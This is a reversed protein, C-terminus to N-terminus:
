IPTKFGMARVACWGMAGEFIMFAGGALAALSIWLAWAELGFLWRAVLLGVGVAATTIGSSLRLARGRPDINCQM